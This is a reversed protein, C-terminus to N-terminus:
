QTRSYTLELRKSLRLWLKHSQTQLVKAAKASQAGHVVKAKRWLTRVQEEAVQIETGHELWLARTFDGAKPRLSFTFRPGVARIEALQTLSAFEVDKASFSADTPHNHTVVNGPLKVLDKSWELKTPSLPVGTAVVEGTHSFAHGEEHDLTRIRAEVAHVKARAEASMHAVGSRCEKEPAICTGKCAKGTRCRKALALCDDILALAFELSAQHIATRM